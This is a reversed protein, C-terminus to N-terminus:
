GVRTDDPAPGDRPPAHELADAVVHADAIFDALVEAHWDDLARVRAALGPHIADLRTALQLRMSTATEDAPRLDAAAQLVILLDDL